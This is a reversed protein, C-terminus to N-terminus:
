GRAEWFGDIQDAGVHVIHFGARFGMKALVTTLPALDLQAFTRDPINLKHGLVELQGVARILRVQEAAIRDLCEGLQRGVPRSALPSYRM